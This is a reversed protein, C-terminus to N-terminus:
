QIYTHIYTHPHLSYWHLSTFQCVSAHAEKIHMTDCYINTDDRQPSCLCLDGNGHSVTQM